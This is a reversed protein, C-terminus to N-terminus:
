RGAPSELADAEAAGLRRLVHALTERALAGARDAALAERAAAEAEGYLGLRCAVHARLLARLGAPAERGLTEVRRRFAERESAGLVEFARSETAAGGPGHVTLEWVYRRGPELDPGGDPYPAAGSPAVSGKWVVRGDTTSLALEARTASDPGEWRFAPRTALVRLAPQILRLTAAGHRVPQAGRESAALPTFDAFLDPHARALDRSAALLREEPGGAPPPDRRSLVFVAILLAAAAAAWPALRLLTGARAPAAPPLADAVAATASRCPECAALHRETEERAPEPLAGEVWGALVAPPPCGESARPRPGLDRILGALPEEM